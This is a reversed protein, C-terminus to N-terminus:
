NKNYKYRSSLPTTTVSVAVAPLHHDLLNTSHAFGDFMHMTGDAEEWQLKVEKLMPKYVPFSPVIYQFEYGTVLVTVYVFDTTEEEVDVM